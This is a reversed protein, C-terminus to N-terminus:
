KCGYVVLSVPQRASISFDLGRQGTEYVYSRGHVRHIFRLM